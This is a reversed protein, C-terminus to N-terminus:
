NKCDNYTNMGDWNINMFNVWKKIQCKSPGGGDYMTWRPDNFNIENSTQVKNLMNNLITDTFEKSFDPSPVYGVPISINDPDV